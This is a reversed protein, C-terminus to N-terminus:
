DELFFELVWGCLIKYKPAIQYRRQSPHSFKKSEPTEVMLFAVYIEESVDSVRWCTVCTDMYVHAKRFAMLKKNYPTKKKQQITQLPIHLL